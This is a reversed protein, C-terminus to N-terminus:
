TITARRAIGASRSARLWQAVLALRMVVYALVLVTYDHAQFAPAIGSALVLVGGMQLITLVRYLWDDTDFSTSFWTFNMWAWWIGFFVFAYSALGEWVDGGSLSGHLEAAAISVAIAFVLDFFLELSSSVRGPESPDRPRMTVLRFRPPVTM